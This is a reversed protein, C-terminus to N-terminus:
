KLLFERRSHISWDSGGVRTLSRLASIYSTRSTVEASGAGFAWGGIARDGSAGMDGGVLSRASSALSQAGLESAHPVHLGLLILETTVHVLKHSRTPSRSLIRRPYQLVFPPLHVLELFVADHPHRNVGLRQEGLRSCSALACKASRLALLVPGDCAQPLFSMTENCVFTTGISIMNPHHCFLVGVMDFERFQSRFCCLTPAAVAANRAACFAIAAFRLGTYRATQAADSGYPTRYRKCPTRCPRTSVASTRNSNTRFRQSRFELGSAPAFHSGNSSVHGCRHCKLWTLATTM